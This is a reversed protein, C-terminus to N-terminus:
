TLIQKVIIRMKEKLIDSYESENIKDIIGAVSNYPLNFVLSTDEERSIPKDLSVSVEKLKNEDSVIFYLYKDKIPEDIM